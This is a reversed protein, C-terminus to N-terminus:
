EMDYSIENMEIEIQDTYRKVYSSIDENSMSDRFHCLINHIERAHQNHDLEKEVLQQHEYLSNAVGTGIKYITRDISEDEASSIQDLVRYISAYVDDFPLSSSNKYIDQQNAIRVM